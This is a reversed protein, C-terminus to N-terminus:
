AKNNVSGGHVSNEYDELGKRGRMDRSLDAFKIADVAYGDAVEEETYDKLYYDEERHEVSGGVFMSGWMPFHVFALTATVGIILYGMYQLGEYTAYKDGFFWLRQNIVAGANGGAGVFGSVIGLARRSVFPVIGYTAGQTM